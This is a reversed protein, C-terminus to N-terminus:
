IENYTGGICMREAVLKNIREIECTHSKENEDYGLGVLVGRDNWFLETFIMIVM